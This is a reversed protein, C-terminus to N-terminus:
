EIIIAVLGVSSTTYIPVTWVGSIPSQVPICHHVIDIFSREECLKYERHVLFFTGHHGLSIHNKTTGLRRGMVFLSIVELPM